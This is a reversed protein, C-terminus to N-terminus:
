TLAHITIVFRYVYNIKVSDGDNSEFCVHENKM